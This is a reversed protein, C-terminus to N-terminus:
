APQPLDRIGESAPFHAWERTHAKYYRRRHLQELALGYMHFNLVADGPVTHISHLDDPMFAIGTGAGVTFDGRQAVGGQGDHDYLRNFEEGQLGVIVAWTSHDHAPTDTGGRSVHAYLAFRHDPDESLRYLANNRASGAPPMPFDTIPFLERRAGLALLTERIRDLSERSVGQEAEIRRVQAVADAIAERRRAHRTIADM